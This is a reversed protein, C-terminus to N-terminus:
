VINLTNQGAMARRLVCIAASDTVNKDRKRVPPKLASSPVDDGDFCRRLSHHYKVGVRTRSTDRKNATSLCVEFRRRRSGPWLWYRSGVFVRNTNPLQVWEDALPQGHLIHLANFAGVLYSIRLLETVEITITAGVDCHMLAAANPLKDSDLVRGKPSKKM